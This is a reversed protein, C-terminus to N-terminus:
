RDFRGTQSLMQLAQHLMPILPVTSATQIWWDFEPIADKYSPDNQEILIGDIVRDQNSLPINIDRSQKIDPNKLPKGDEDLNYVRITISATKGLFDISDFGIIEAKRKTGFTSNAITTIIGKEM